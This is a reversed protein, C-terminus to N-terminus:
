WDTMYHPIAPLCYGRRSGGTYAITGDGTGHFELVPTTTRGPTCVSQVLNNDYVTYPNACTTDQTYLAGSSFGFAAFRPGLTNNCSLVGNFGGGNSM